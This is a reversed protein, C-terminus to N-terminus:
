TARAPRRGLWRYLSSYSDDAAMLVTSMNYVFLDKYSVAVISQLTALKKLSIIAREM